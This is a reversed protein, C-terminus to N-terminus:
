VRVGGEKIADRVARFYLLGHKQHISTRFADAKIFRMTTRDLEKASM